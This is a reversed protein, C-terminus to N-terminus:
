ETENSNQSTNNDGIVLNSGNISGNVHINITNGAPKKPTRKQAPKKKAEAAEKISEKKGLDEARVQIAQMLKERGGDLYLNVAQYKSLSFPLECEELKAPVIFVTGEPKEMAENLALKLERQVYGEKTVANNSLFIIILDSKDLAKHIELNWDQGPILKEEDLWADVGKEVLYRYYKRVAPKDQTAHCLFVKLPAISM